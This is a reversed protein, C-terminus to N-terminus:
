SVSQVTEDDTRARSVRKVPAWSAWETISRIFNLNLQVQKKIEHRASFLERWGARCDDRFAKLFEIAQACFFEFSSQRGKFEMSEMYKCSKLNM